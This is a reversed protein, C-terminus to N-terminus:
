NLYKEINDKIVIKIGKELGKKVKGTPNELGQKDKIVLIDSNNNITNGVVGGLSEIREQLEKDRFGSIVWNKYKLKSKVKNNDKNNIVIINLLKSLDNYKKKFNDYNELVLKGTKEEFGEIEKLDTLSPKKKLFNPINELMGKAKRSGFNYGLSNTALIFQELKIEKNRLMSIEKVFNDASKDKVSPLKLFDEKELGLIIEITTFNHQYLKEILKIGFGKVGLTKFFFYIKKIEQQSTEGEMYIDVGSNSWSFPLAPMDPKTSKIVKLIHPIVDGSRTIEIISNSGLKNDKIYKANFASVRCITVGGLETPEIIIVPNISGSKSINWEIGIVKVQRTQNELLDKFAFAYEPNKNEQRKHVSNTTVIIGDVDYKSNKKRNKLIQNLIQYNIEEEKQYYVPIFGLKKILKFQDEFINFPDVVEYVVFDLDQALFPKITKSNVIGSVLNRANKFKEQYKKQFIDKRMIIEGRVALINKKGKKDLKKIIDDYKPLNLYKTLKTIDMGESATGRTFMKIKNNNYIVLGSIGDLKDSLLFPSTYKKLWNSLKTSPPKVKDMSGLYYDLTVKNKSVRAGVQKLFPAKPNRKHLFDLLIDFENDTIIPEGSQYYTESAKELFLELIDISLNQGVYFVDKKLDKIIQKTNLM